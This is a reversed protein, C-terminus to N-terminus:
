LQGFTIRDLPEFVAIEGIEPVFSLEGLIDKIVVLTAHYRLLHDPPAVLVAHTAVGFAPIAISRQRGMGTMLNRLAYQQRRCM